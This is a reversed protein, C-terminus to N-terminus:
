EGPQKDIVHGQADLIIGTWGGPITQPKGAADRGTVRTVIFVWKTHDLRGDAICDESTKCGAAALAIRTAAEKTIVASTEQGQCLGGALGMLLVAASHRMVILKLPWRCFQIARWARV